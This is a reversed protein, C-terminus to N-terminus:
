LNSFSHLQNSCIKAMDHALQVGTRSVKIVQCWEFQQAVLRIDQITFKVVLDPITELTLFRVLNVSDIHIAISNFPQLHAWELALLCARAELMLASSGHSIVGQGKGHLTPPQQIM